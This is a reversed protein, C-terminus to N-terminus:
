VSAASGFEDAGTSELQTRLKRAMEYVSRLREIAALPLGPTELALESSLLLATVTGNLESHLKGSASRRARAEDQQRRLVAARVEAVLRNIGCIALNVQVSIASGLHEIATGAEDRDTELLYQDFVVALYCEARLLTTARALSEAVAM